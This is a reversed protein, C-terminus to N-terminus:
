RVGMSSMCRVSHTNATILWCDFQIHTIIPPRSSILLLICPTRNKIFHARSSTRGRCNRAITYHTYGVATGANTAGSWAGSKWCRETASTSLSWDVGTCALDNICATLCASLTTAGIALHGSNVNTNTQTTWVYTCRAAIGIFCKSYTPNKQMQYLSTCM